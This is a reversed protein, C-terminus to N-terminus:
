LGALLQTAVAVPDEADSAEQPQDGMAVVRNQLDGIYTIQVGFNEGVKVARGCGIVRNNVLLELEADASKPLEIIAGPVLHMVEDLTMARQGIQVIFPVELELIASLDAPM